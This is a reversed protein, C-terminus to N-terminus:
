LNLTFNVVAFDINRKQSLHQYTLLIYLIHHQRNYFTFIFIYISSDLSLTKTLFNLYLILFKRLSVQHHFLTEPLSLYYFVIKALDGNVMRLMLLYVM